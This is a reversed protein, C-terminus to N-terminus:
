FAALPGVALHPRKGHSHLGAPLTTPAHNDPLLHARYIRSYRSTPEQIVVCRCANCCVEVTGRYLGVKATPGQRSEQGGYSRTRNRRQGSVRERLDIAIDRRVAPITRLITGKVCTM